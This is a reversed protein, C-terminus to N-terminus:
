WLTPAMDFNLHKTETFEELGSLGQQRGVGSHKFGGVEMEPYFRNYTNIWVTGAKIARSVRWARELATTWVGASLGYATANALEVAEDDDAFSEVVLVPGFIEERVLRSSPPLDAFITPPVFCADDDVGSEVASSGGGVVATGEREGAAIYELIKRQQSKSAVPAVDTLPDLGDGIRLARTRDALSRLVEDRVSQEVLLRSGATCIQGSSGFAAQLAGELAKEMPADAFIINPAKGGLELSVKKLGDAASKMVRVGTYTEGTFAVMDVQPVRVLEAGVTAGPGLVCQVVGQPLEEDSALLELAELSIASTLSAPKVVVANGAALAPALARALLTLPWNWPTIIAVVGIPERLLVGHTDEGLALARGYMARALGAFFDVQNATGMVEARSEHIRKGQERTLLESLRDIHARLSEAYRHLIRARLAGNTSWTRDNFGAEAAEAAATVDDLTSARV